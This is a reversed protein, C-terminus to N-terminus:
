GFSCSPISNKTLSFHFIFDPYHMVPYSLVRKPRGLNLNQANGSTSCISKGVILEHNCSHDSPSVLSSGPGSAATM